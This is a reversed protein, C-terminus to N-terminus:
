PDINCRQSIDYSYMRHMWPMRGHLIYGLFVDAVDTVDSTRFYQRTGLVEGKAAPAFPSIRPVLNYFACHILSTSHDFIM